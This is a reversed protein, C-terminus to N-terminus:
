PCKCCPSISAFVDLPLTHRNTTVKMPPDQTRTSKYPRASDAANPSRYAFTPTAEKATGRAVNSERMHRSDLRSNAAGTSTSWHRDVLFRLALEFLTECSWM